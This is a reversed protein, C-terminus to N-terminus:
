DRADAREPDFLVLYALYLPIPDAVNEALYREVARYGAPEHATLCLWGGIRDIYNPSYAIKCGVLTSFMGYEERYVQKTLTRAFRDMDTADFVVGLRAAKPIPEITVYGHSIEECKLVDPPLSPPNSPSIPAAAYEWIYGGEASVALRNKFFQLLAAARARDEERGALRAALELDYGFVNQANFPQPQRPLTDDLYYAEEPTAGPRYRDGYVDLAALCDALLSDRAAPSAWPAAPPAAPANEYVLALDGRLALLTELIPEVILGTHVFFVARKGPLYRTSGWAPLSRNRFDVRGIRDDRRAMAQLSYEWALELYRERGTAAYMTVLALAHRSAEWALKGDENDPLTDLYATWFRDPYLQEFHTVSGYTRPDQGLGGPHDVWFQTVAGRVERDQISAAQSLREAGTPPRVSQSRSAGCGPLLLALAVCWTLSRTRREPAAHPTQTLSRTM